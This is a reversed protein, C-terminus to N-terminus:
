RPSTDSLAISKDAGLRIIAIKIKGSRVGSQIHSASMQFIM